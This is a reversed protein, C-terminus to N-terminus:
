PQRPLTIGTQEVPLADLIVESERPSLGKHYRCALDVFDEFEKCDRFAHRPIIHAQSPTVFFFAHENTSDILWVVLWTYHVHQFDNAMEFGDATIRLRRRAYYWRCEDRDWYLRITNPIVIKAQLWAFVVVALLLGVVVGACCGSLWAGKPQRYFWGSLGALLVPLPALVMRVMYVLPQHTRKPRHKLHYRLFAAIDAVTLEYEIEM